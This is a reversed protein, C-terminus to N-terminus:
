NKKSLEAKVLRQSETVKEFSKSEREYHKIYDLMVCTNYLPNKNKYLSKKFLNYFM